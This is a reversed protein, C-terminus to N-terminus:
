KADVPLTEAAYRWDEATSNKTRSETAIQQVLDHDDFRLFVGDTWHLKVGGVPLVALFLWLRTQTVDNVLYYGVHCDEFYANMPGCLEVVQSRSTEGIKVLSIKTTAPSLPQRSTRIPLPVCGFVMVTILM